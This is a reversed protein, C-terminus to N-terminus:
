CEEFDSEQCYLEATKPTTIGALAAAAFREASKTYADKKDLRIPNWNNDDWTQGRWPKPQSLPVELAEPFINPLPSPLEDMNLQNKEDQQKNDDPAQIQTHGNRFTGKHVTVNSMATFEIINDLRRMFAEKHQEVKMFEKMYWNGPETNSTIIIKKALNPTFSGKVPLLQPYADLFNLMFDLPISGYFDDLIICEQGDYGDFWLAGGGVKPMVWADTNDAHATYSKGTGSKGWYVSVQTKWHRKTQQLQKYKELGKFHKIIAEGEYEAVTALSAGAKILEMAGALKSKGQNGQIAPLGWSGGQYLAKEEETTLGTPKKCYNIAQLQTGMRPEWHATKYWGGCKKIGALRMTKDWETYGQYHLTGNDGKELQYTIFKIHEDQELQENKPNNLTFCWARFSQAM